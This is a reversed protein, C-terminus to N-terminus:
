GPGCATEITQTAALVRDVVAQDTMAAVAGQLNGRKAPAEARQFDRAFDRLAAVLQRNTPALSKPVVGADLLRASRELQQRQTAIREGLDHENESQALLESGSTLAVTVRQLRAYLVACAPRDAASIQPAAAPSAPTATAAGPSATAAGPRATPTATDGARQTAGGCGGAVLALAIVAARRM